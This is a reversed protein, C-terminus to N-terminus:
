RTSQLVDGLTSTNPTTTAGLVATSPSASPTIAATARAPATPTATASTSATLAPTSTARPTSTAGLVATPATSQAATPAASTSLVARPGVGATPAVFVRGLALAAVVLAAALVFPVVPPRGRLPLRELCRNCFGSV